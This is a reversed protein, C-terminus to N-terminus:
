PTAAGSEEGASGGGVSATGVLAAADAALAFRSTTRTYLM